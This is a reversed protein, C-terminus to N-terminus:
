IRSGRGSLRRIITPFAWKCHWGLSTKSMVVTNPAHWYTIRLNSFKRMTFLHKYFPTHIRILRFLKRNVILRFEEEVEQTFEKVEERNESLLDTVRSVENMDVEQGESFVFSGNSDSTASRQVLKPSSFRIHRGRPM